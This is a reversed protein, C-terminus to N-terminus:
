AGKVVHMIPHRVIHGQKLDQKSPHRHVARRHVARRAPHNAAAKRPKAVAIHRPKASATKIASTEPASDVAKASIANTDHPMISADNSAPVTGTDLVVQKGYRMDVSRLQPYQQTWEALHAQYARYRPLFDSDGFHVLPPHGGGVFVARIDEPDSLEVESLTASIKEGDADLARSFKRYTQVRAARVALPDSDSIGSLVPFSYHQSVANPLGLLVGQDDVLRVASGDRVFAIPTREVLRVRLRNPWLRMVTALRVWQIQELQSQRKALPVHFISRGLDPAFIAMAERRTVVRNGGIRVDDGSRLLFRPNHLLLSKSGLAIVALLGLVLTVGAAALLQVWRNKWGFRSGFRSRRRRLPIRQATRLFPENGEPDVFEESAQEPIHATEADRKAGAKRRLVDNAEERDLLGVREGSGTIKKM